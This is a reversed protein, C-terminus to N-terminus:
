CTMAKMEEITMTDSVSKTIDLLREKERVIESVGLGAGLARMFKYDLEQLLPKREVRLRNKTIEAARKRCICVREGDFTWADRFARDVPLDAEHVYDFSVAKAEPFTEQWKAVHNPVLEIDWESHWDMISVGGDSRKILIKM